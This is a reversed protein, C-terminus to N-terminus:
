ERKLEPSQAAQRLKQIRELRDLYLRDMQEKQVALPVAATKGSDACFESCYFEGAAGKWVTNGYLTQHCVRCHM